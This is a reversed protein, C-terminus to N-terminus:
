SSVKISNCQILQTYEIPAIEKESTAVTLQTQGLSGSINKDIIVFGNHSCHLVITNNIRGSFLFKIREWMSLQTSVECEILSKM